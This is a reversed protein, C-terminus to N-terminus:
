EEFKNVKLLILMLPCDTNKDNACYVGIGNLIKNTIAAFEWADAMDGSIKATTLRDFKNEVGFTKVKLVPGSMKDIITKNEWSWLWTKTKKSYDGAAAVTFELKVEGKNKFQLVCKDQDYWWNEYKGMKYKVVLTDQQKKLESISQDYLEDYTMSYLGVNLTFTLLLATYKMIALM